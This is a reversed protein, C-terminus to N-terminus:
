ELWEPPLYALNEPAHKQVLSALMKGMSNRHPHNEGIRMASARVRSPDSWDSRAAELRNAIKAKYAENNEQEDLYERFAVSIPSALAKQRFAEHWTQLGTKVVSYAPFFECGSAIENLSAETFATQPFDAALTEAYLSITQKTPPTKGGTTLLSLKAVWIAAMQLHQKTAM